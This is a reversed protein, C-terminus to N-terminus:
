FIIRIRFTNCGSTNPRKTIDYPFDATSPEACVSSFFKIIGCFLRCSNCFAFFTHNQLRAMKNRIYCILVSINFAQFFLHNLMQFLNRVTVADQGNFTDPVYCSGTQYSFHAIKLLNLVIESIVFNAPRSRKSILEPWNLPCRRIELRPRGTIRLSSKKCGNVHDFRSPDHMFFIFLHQVPTHEFHFCQYSNGSFNQANNKGNDM